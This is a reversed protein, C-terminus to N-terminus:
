SKRCNKQALSSLQAFLLGRFRPHFILLNKVVVLSIEYDVAAAAAAALWTTTVSKKNHLFTFRQM